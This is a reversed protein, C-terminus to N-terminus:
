FLILFVEVYHDLCLVQLVGYIVLTSMIGAVAFAGKFLKDKGAPSAPEAM